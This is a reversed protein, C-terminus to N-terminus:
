EVTFEEPEYEKERKAVNKKIKEVSPSSNKGLKEYRINVYNGKDYLSIICYDNAVVLNHDTEAYKKGFAMIKQKLAQFIKNRYGELRNYCPINIYLDKMQVDLFKEDKSIEGDYVPEIYIDIGDITTPISKGEEHIADYIDCFEVIDKRLVEDVQAPKIDNDGAFDYFRDIIDEKYAKAFSEPKTNVTLGLFGTNTIKLKSVFDDVDVHMSIVEEDTRSFYKIAYITPQDPYLRKGEKDIFVYGDEMTEILMREGGLREPLLFNSKFQESGIEEGKTNIFQYAEEEEDDDGVSALLLDFGLIPYLYKYTPEILIEGKMNMLGENEGDGFVFYDGFVDDDIERIDASPKIVVKGEKDVLGYARKDSEDEDKRYKYVRVYDGGRCIGTSIYQKGTIKGLETDNIDRLYDHMKWPLKHRYDAAENKPSTLVMGDKYWLVGHHPRILQEGTADLLGWSGDTTEVSMRGDNAVRVKRVKKGDVKDLERLVEGERNIISIHEGPKVVVAVGNIFNNFYRYGSSILRPTEEAAYLAYLGNSERVFFRDDYAFTVLVSDVFADTFIVHGDPSIMSWKGDEESQYPIGTIQPVNSGNKEFLCCSAMLLLAVVAYLCFRMTKM